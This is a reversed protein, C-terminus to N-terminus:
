IKLKYGCYPCLNFDEKVDKGCDPCKSKDTKKIQIKENFEIIKDKGVDKETLHFTNRMLALVRAEEETFEGDEKFVEFVRLYLDTIDEKEFKNLIAIESDMLEKYIMINDEIQEFKKDLAEDCKECYVSESDTKIEKGCEICKRLIKDGEATKEPKAM